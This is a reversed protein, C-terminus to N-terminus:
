DAHEDQAGTSQLDGLGPSRQMGPSTQWNDVPPKDPLFPPLAFQLHTALANVFPEYLGRLEALAKALKPEDRMPLGANCLSERLRGLDAAPLRDSSPPLPPTQSVLVLDVAAHRAMAFTLRAQYSDPGEVSTILLASADLIMTLASLWSQNDHQSRYYRLVPFTLHSELLEAAWREWEALVPGASSLSRSDGLRRLLEGATPPSGARADLMSITIERRSFAQYLVPLYSIVVALFGFGIGAEAVSLARGLGDHTVVDGFGVTFFTTGSFYLYTTFGHRTGPPISLATDLSWHLLAFGTILGLAWVVILAFLSLPGFISLFGRRWRGAPLLPVLAQWLFWASRYFLQALRYGHRVRRPLIVAEFADIFVIGIVALAAAVGLWGM